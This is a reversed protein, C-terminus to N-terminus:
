DIWHGEDYEKHTLVNCIYIRGNEFRAVCILRYNNGGIDFVIRGAVWDVSRFTRRVDAFNKWDAAQVALRWQKLPKEAKKHKRFFQRARGWHIIQM